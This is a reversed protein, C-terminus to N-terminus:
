HTMQRLAKEAVTLTHDIQRADEITLARQMSNSGTREPDLNRYSELLDLYEELGYENLKNRMATIVQTAVEQFRKDSYVGEWDVASEGSGFPGKFSELHDIILKQLHSYEDQKNEFLLSPSEFGDLKDITGRVSILFYRMLPRPIVGPTFEKRAQTDEDSHEPWLMKVSSTRFFCYEVLVRGVTDIGRNEESRVVESVITEQADNKNFENITAEFVKDLIRSDMGATALNRRLLNSFERLQEESIKEALRRIKSEQTEM